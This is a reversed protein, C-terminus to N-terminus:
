TRPLGYTRPVIGRHILMQRIATINDVHEKTITNKGHLDKAQVNVMTMEEALDKAKFRIISWM